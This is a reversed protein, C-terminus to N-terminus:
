IIYVIRTCTSAYTCINYIFVPDYVFHLPLIRHSLNFKTSDQTRKTEDMRDMQIAM